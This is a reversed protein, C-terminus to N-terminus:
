SLALKYFISDVKMKPFSPPLSKEPVQIFGNKEYFRHAALLKPNTGLYIFQKGNQESWQIAKELLLKALGISKGRHAEHVFMKRLAMCEKDIDLLGISGVVENNFLALWFNGKEQQYYKKIDLLDPQDERTIPVNFEQQQIHLILSIM